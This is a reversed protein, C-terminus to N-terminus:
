IPSLSRVQAPNKSVQAEIEGMDVAGDIALEQTYSNFGQGLNMAPNWPALMLSM